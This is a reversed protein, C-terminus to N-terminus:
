PSCTITADAWDVLDFTSLDGAGNVFFTLKYKGSVLPQGQEIAPATGKKGGSSRAPRLAVGSRLTLLGTSLLEL